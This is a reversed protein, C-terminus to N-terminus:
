ARSIGRNETMSFRPKVARRERRGHSREERVSRRAFTSRRAAYVSTRRAFTSGRAAYVGTRRPLHRRERLTFATCPRAFTPRKMTAFQPDIRAYFVLFPTAYGRKGAVGGCPNGPPLAPYADRMANKPPSRHLSGRVVGQLVSASGAQSRAPIRKRSVKGAAARSHNSGLICVASNLRPSSM